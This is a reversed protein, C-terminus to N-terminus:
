YIYRSSNRLQFVLRKAESHKAINNLVEQVIRYLNIELEKAFRLDDINEIRSEFQIETSEEVSEIM